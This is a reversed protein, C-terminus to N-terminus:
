LSRSDAKGATPCFGLQPADRNPNSCPPQGVKHLTELARHLPLLLLYLEGHAKIQNTGSPQALFHAFAQRFRDYHDEVVDTLMACLWLLLTPAEKSGVIAQLIALAVTGTFFVAGLPEDRRREPLGPTRQAPM